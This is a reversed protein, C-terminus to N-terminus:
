PPNVTSLVKTAFTLASSSDLQLHYHKFFTTPSSWVAAKCIDEISVAAREASSTSMARTSHARLCEPPSKGSSSYALSIASTIWRALTNKSAAHGKRRGLNSSFGKKALLFRDFEMGDSPPEKDKRLTERPYQALDQIKERLKWIKEETLFCKQIRSDLRLGLFLQDQSPEPRLKERNLIWGMEELIQLVEQVAKRCAEGSEGVILLDDLYPILLIDKERIHAAM